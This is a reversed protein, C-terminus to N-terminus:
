EGSDAAPSAYRARGRQTVARGPRAGAGAQRRREARRRGRDRHRLVMLRTGLVRDVGLALRQGSGSRVVVASRVGQAHSERGHLSRSLPVFPIVKGEHLLSEGDVGRAVTGASLRLCGEVSELPLAATTGASEIML